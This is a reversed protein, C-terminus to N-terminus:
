YSKTKSISKWEKALRSYFVDNVIGNIEFDLIDQLIRVANETEESFYDNQPIFSYNSYFELMEKLMSNFKFIAPSQDGKKIPFLIDPAIKHADEQKLKSLYAKYIARYSELDAYDREIFNNERQFRNLAIKTKDDFKGNQNISIENKYIKALYRQLTKIASINDNIDYM